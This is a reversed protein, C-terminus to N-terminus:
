PDADVNISGDILLVVWYEVKVDLLCAWTIYLVTVKELKKTVILRFYEILYAHINYEVYSM